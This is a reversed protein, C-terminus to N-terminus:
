NTVIDGKRVMDSLSKYLIKAASYEPAIERVVVKGIMAKRRFVFLTDDTTIGDNSGLNVIVFEYAKNVELIKGSVYKAGTVVIPKLNITRSKEMPKKNNKKLIKKLFLIESNKGSVEQNLMAIASTLKNRETLLSEENIKHESTMAEIRASYESIKALSTDNEAMLGALKDEVSKKQETIKEISAELAVNHETLLLTKDFNAKNTGYLSWAIISLSLVVIISIINWILNKM